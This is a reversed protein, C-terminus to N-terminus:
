ITHKVYGSIVRNEVKIRREMSYLTCNCNPNSYSVDRKIRRATQQTTHKNPGMYSSHPADAVTESLTDYVFCAYSPFVGPGPAATPRSFRIDHKRIEEGGM